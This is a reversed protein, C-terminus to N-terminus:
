LDCCHINNNIVHSECQSDCKMFLLLTLLYTFVVILTDTIYTTNIKLDCIVHHSQSSFHPISYFKVM